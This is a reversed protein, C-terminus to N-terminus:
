NKGAIKELVYLILDEIISKYDAIYEETVRNAIIACITATRHGLMQGLGFIASSEMEFNTIRHGEFNFDMISENLMKLEPKLRLIRGQPGYFGPASISVGETVEQGRLM